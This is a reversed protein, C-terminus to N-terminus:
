EEMAKTAYEEWSPKEFGHEDDIMIWHIYLQPITEIDIAKQETAGIRYANYFDWAEAQENQEIIRNHYAKAREEITAM